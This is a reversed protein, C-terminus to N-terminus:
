LFFVLVEVCGSMKVRLNRDTGSVKMLHLKKLEEEPEQWSISTVHCSIPRVHPEAHLSPFM